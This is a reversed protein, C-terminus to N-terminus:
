CWVLFKIDCNELQGKFIIRHFAAPKEVETNWGMQKVIRIYLATCLLFNNCLYIYHQSKWETRDRIYIYFWWLFSNNLNLCSQDGTKWRHKSYKFLTKFKFKKRLNNGRNDFIKSFQATCNGYDFKRINM